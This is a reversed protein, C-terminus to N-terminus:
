MHLHPLLYVHCEVRDVVHKALEALQLSQTVCREEGGVLEGCGGM